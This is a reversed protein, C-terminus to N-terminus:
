LCERMLFTLILYFTLFNGHKKIFLPIEGHNEGWEECIKEPKQYFHIYGQFSTIHRQEPPKNKISM